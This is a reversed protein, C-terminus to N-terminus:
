PLVTSPRRVGLLTFFGYWAVLAVAVAVAVTVTLSRADRGRGLVLTGAVLFAVTSVLFGLRFATQSYVTLLVGLLLVTRPERATDAEADPRYEEPVADTHEVVKAGSRQQVLDLGVIGLGVVLLGVGTVRPLLAPDSSAGVGLPLERLLWLVVAGLLALGAGSLLAPRTATM